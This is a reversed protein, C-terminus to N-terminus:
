LYEGIEIGYNHPDLAKVISRKPEDTAENLEALDVVKQNSQHGEASLLIKVKPRLLNFHNIDSVIAIEKSDLEVLCGLPYCGILSLFLKGINPNLSNGCCKLIIKFADDPLFAKRYARDSTVADYTDAIAIIQGFLHGENKEKITPYGKLDYRIHHEFAGIICIDSIGKIESLVRAGNVPHLKIQEWEEDSLKDPKNIIEWPVLLKGIDHLIAAEGLLNLEERNLKLASGILVSLLAVNVSHHFTYDDLHKLNILEAMAEKNHLVNEILSQITARITKMSIYSSDIDACVTRFADVASKYAERGTLGKLEPADETEGDRKVTSIYPLIQAVEINRLGESKVLKNIGGMENIYEVDQSLITLFKEMEEFNIRSLIKISSVNRKLCQQLFESHLMSEEKLPTDNLYLENRIINLNIKGLSEFSGALAQMLESLSQKIMPHGSPYLKISKQAGEFSTLIIKGLKKSNSAHNEV